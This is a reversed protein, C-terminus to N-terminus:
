CLSDSFASSPNVKCSLRGSSEKRRCGLSRSGPVPRYLFIHWSMFSLSLLLLRAAPSTKYISISGHLEQGVEIWSCGPIKRLGKEKMLGRINSVKDWKGVTAYVNSLAVYNGSNEPDLKLLWKAIYDALEIDHNQRCAVLLSGLIHADPHSPMTLITGLAEDLQGDNALLKVLCGYHEESPKMQLETVMYKFVEMGEKVLGGHSCASLVSTLTIHDPVIGEKELQKFLALAERAQGHSAYATIMANYVPLEKTSCMSFVCKADDLSGCKAYMDMISTTIHISQSMDHRMVYGHIARGYKLLAMNTCGSLASTISMSNPRIGVDQMKRFAMMADCGLGSQALGSMMTTWTILNPTVGSSCMEAFMNRAEAVQGNKFFGFIVSNWSVVNPPVSELQMQFFLKLAEGSLGREACAALMTNWLVIDKKRACSFVRRASDMRGCKAYMDVIGCSVVVDSEFENKVCYGHAKMGLGVDRTDAAVALLSSLTVCDFRLNEERMVRCMELAKGVLGFQVYGSVVLNWTVVDKMVMNGFVVEAEEVLGVKFYFNMVSSGLVNDLELGGVVALGHGQRGEGVAELNACATFFASLAVSTVEVGHLRMEWFLRIADENMGNQAYTVILSNWAVDNKDLMADFVREADELAGCKGYMDVLSTAVYVCRNFGMTKVVFSHVGKGFRVWRLVGCAKLANPIVFNDPPFGDHQMKIYGSLAEECRGTRTHLGIIAAWSFVNQNRSDRFLRTAVDSAGCKAYLIVLKSEVFDNQIFSHGMKILCAHIQLGLPLAREYVCGQLLTGYIDPGVHLNRSQMQTLSEVAERIRGDKCLSSIHKHSFQIPTLSTPTEPKSHALHLTPSPTIPSSLGHM